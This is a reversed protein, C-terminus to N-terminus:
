TYYNSTTKLTNYLKDALAKYSESLKRYHAKKLTNKTSKEELELSHLHALQALQRLEEITLNINM